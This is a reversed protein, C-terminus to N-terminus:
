GSHSLKEPLNTSLVDGRAGGFFSREGFTNGNYFVCLTAYEYTYVTPPFPPEVDAHKKQNKHPVASVPGASLM